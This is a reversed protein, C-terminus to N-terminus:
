GDGDAAEQQAHARARAAAPPNAVFQHGERSGEVKAADAERRQAPTLHEWAEAPLYRHVEGDRIAPRGDATTWAEAEWQELHRQAPTREASTYGGGADEYARVLLQSKRASWQGAKGGRDGAQIEEKLRARLEPDTYVRDDHARAM